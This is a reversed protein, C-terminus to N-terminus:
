SDIWQLIYSLERPKLRNFRFGEKGLRLGAVVLKNAITKYLELKESLEIRGEHDEALGQLESTLIEIQFVASGLPTYGDRENYIFLAKGYDHEIFSDVVDDIIEVHGCNTAWHLLNGDRPPKEVVPIAPDPFLDDLFDGQNELTTKYYTM